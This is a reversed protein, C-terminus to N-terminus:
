LSLNLSLSFSRETPYANMLTKYSNFENSQDPTWLYLNDGILSLSCNQLKMKECVKKPVSYSLVANQLKVNTRNYLYRTSSMTSKSTITSIRPNIALQGPESWHSIADVGSNSDTSSYGDRLGRGQLSSLIYGGLSYNFMFRFSFNKYTFNNTLSGVGWADPKKDDLIVRNDTSYNFTVNGNKDYWMPAGTAPDVGAWRVLYFAGRPHNESWVTTGYSTMMGNYLKTIKNSNHSFILDTSWEFTKNNINKSNITLEVGQNRMEGVNAYLRDDSITRSTYIKTLLDTTYNNYYEVEIDLRNWFSTRLGANFMTTAEWSLGPNAISASVAGLIGNYSYTDSYTYTGTNISSDIRSNGNTGLSTKFKLLNIIDSNFFEENHINWSLGLSGFKAWRSYKGFSSNGDARANATLYYRSNYSIQAQALYSLSRKKDFSSSGSRSTSESYGIEQIHDNLFGSGTAYLTSYQNHQLEVGALGGVNFEGFKKQYNLRLINNWNLYSASARRSYGKPENNILGDLTTRASYMEENTTMLSVGFQETLDLGDFINFKLTTTADIRSTKQVNKNDDREPISNSFFKQNKWSLVPNGNPDYNVSEVLRNYLRNTYGDALYPTYIPLVEYYENSLAFLNNNNYSASLTTGFTLREAFKYETNYRASFRQQNNTKITGKEDFYSLSLRNTSKEGGSRLSLGAEFTQGQGFYLNGWDVDTTSYSNLENDQFPFANIDQGGNVWAERAYSLYQSANMVKYRTSQDINSIGYRINANVIVKDTKTGSKTKVIIVGNAGNAGYISTASADKLVTISEIDSPNLYSLPSVTYSAGPMMNTSSGQYVPVGDVIWLPENSASLSAEGRVRINYRTRPSGPSDSNPEVTLGPVLGDLMKDIRAPPLNQLDKSQVQFASGVMDSRKQALGYGAEIVVESLLTSSQLKVTIEKTQSNVTISTKKMGVYSFHLIVPSNTLSIIFKGDVDTVTRQSTEGVSIAVGPLVDGDEESVVVGSITYSNVSQANCFSYFLLLILSQSFVFYRLRNM